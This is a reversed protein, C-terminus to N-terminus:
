EDILSRERTQYSSGNLKFAIGIYDNADAIVVGDGNRGGKALVLQNNLPPSNSGGGWNGESLRGNPAFQICIWNPESEQSENVPDALPYDFSYVALGDSDYNTKKYVSRRGSEPWGEPLTVENGQPVVFIGEPLYAGRDIAIWENKNTNEIVVGIRRLYSEPSDTDANIILRAHVGNTIAQTRAVRVMSHLIDAGKDLARDENGRAITYFGISVLLSIVAMTILLEFLTFASLGRSKM